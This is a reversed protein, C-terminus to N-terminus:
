AARKALVSWVLAVVWGVLTWGLFVNLLFIGLTNAHWRTLAIVTPLFYAAMLFLIVSYGLVADPQTEAAAVTADMALCAAVPLTLLVRRMTNGWGRSFSVSFLRARLRDGKPSPTGVAIIWCTSQICM